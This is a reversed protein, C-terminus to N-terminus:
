VCVRQWGLPDPRGLALLGNEILCELPPVLFVAIPRGAKFYDTDLKTVSGEHARHLALWETVESMLTAGVGCM